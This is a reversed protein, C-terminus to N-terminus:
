NDIESIFDRFKKDYARKLQNPYFIVEIDELFYSFCEKKLNEETIRSIERDLYICLKGKEKQIAQYSITTGNKVALNKFIYYLTLSPYKNKKGYIVKGTRGMVDNIIKHKMGCTCVTENDLIISDGLKYRIIPFSDSLLNTVIIEGNEEEVIVNEMVIHMNGMKCEYAIIGTEASGYESVIKKGFAKKAEEQYSDFIKESTGKVMKLNFPGLNEENILKAVEYIMSSYGELYTANELKRTFKKIETKDYSFIRFRNLLMDLFKTVVKRKINFGYGWFYGNLDYPNVDYWSYGRLQAARHGADWESNRYFILPEGTSGSTESYFLKRYGDKNQIDGINNLLDKKSVCPIKKMDSLCRIDEPKIGSKNFLGRYFSSKNYAINVIRKLRKLQYEELQALSWQESSRLLENHNIIEPSRLRIGIEYIIKHIM